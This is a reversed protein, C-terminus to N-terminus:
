LSLTCTQTLLYILHNRGVYIYTLHNRGVYIYPLHNRGMYTYPLHNRGVYLYTLHNIGVYIIRLFVISSLMTTKVLSIKKLPNWAHLGQERKTSSHQLPSQGYLLAERHQMRCWVLRRRQFSRYREDRESDWWM